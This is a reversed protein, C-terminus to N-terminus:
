SSLLNPHFPYGRRMGHLTTHNCLWDCAYGTHLDFHVHKSRNLVQVTSRQLNANVCTHQSKCPPRLLPIAVTKSQTTQGGTVQVFKATYTTRYMNFLWAITDELCM